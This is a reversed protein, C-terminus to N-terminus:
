GETHKGRQSRARKRPIVHRFAEKDYRTGTARGHLPMGPERYFIPGLKKYVSDIVSNKGRKKGKKKREKKKKKRLTRPLTEDIFPSFM